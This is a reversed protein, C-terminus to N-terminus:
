SVGALLGDEEAAGYADDRCAGRGYRLLDLCRENTFSDGARRKSQLRQQRRCPTEFDVRAPLDVVPITNPKDRLCAVEVILLTRSILGPVDQDISSLPQPPFSDDTSAAKDGEVQHERQLVAATLM